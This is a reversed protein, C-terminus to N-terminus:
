RGGPQGLGRIFDTTSMRKPKPVGAITIRDDLGAAALQEKSYTEEPVEVDQRGDDVSQPQFGQPRGHEPGISYDSETPPLPIRTPAFAPAADSGREMARLAKGFTRYATRLTENKTDDYVLKDALHSLAKAAQEPTYGRKLLEAHATQAAIGILKDITEAKSM